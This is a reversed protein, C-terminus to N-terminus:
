SGHIFFVSWGIEHVGAPGNASNDDEDPCTIAPVLPENYGSLPPQLLDGIGVPAPAPGPTNPNVVVGAGFFAERRIVFVFGGQGPAPALHENRNSLDVFAYNKSPFGACTLVSPFMTTNAFPESHADFNDGNVQVSEFAGDDFPSPTDAFARPAGKLAGTINYFRGSQFANDRMFTLWGTPGLFNMTSSTSAPNGAFDIGTVILAVDGGNLDILSRRHAVDDNSPYDAQSGDVTMLYDNGPLHGRACPNVARLSFEVQSFQLPFFPEFPVRIGLCYETEGHTFLWDSESPSNALNPTFTKPGGIRSPWHDFGGTGLPNCRVQTGMGTFQRIDFTLMKGVGSDILRAANERGVSVGTIAPGSGGTLTSNLNRLADCAGLILVGATLIGAVPLIKKVSKM